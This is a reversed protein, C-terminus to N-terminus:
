GNEAKMISEEFWRPLSSREVQLRWHGQPSREAIWRPVSSSNDFFYARYSHSAATAALGLSRHYREIVKHRPVDHGGWQVREWVRHLNVEPSETAIYYLYTRYGAKRSRAFFEVKSRHSMVTEFAFSRRLNFLRDRLFDAITAAVYADVAVPDVRLIGDQLNLSDLFPNPALVRGGDLFFKRIEEVSAPVNLKIQGSLSLEQAIDDANIFTHIRFLGSPNFEKALSHVLSTKGSGNPGAFM